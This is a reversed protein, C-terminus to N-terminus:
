ALIATSSYVLSVLDAQRRVGTKAYILGMNWKPFEAAYMDNDEVQEPLYVEVPGISGFKM